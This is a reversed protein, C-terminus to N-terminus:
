ASRRRWGHGILGVGVLGTGLLFLTGPEPVQVETAINKFAGWAAGEQFGPNQDFVGQTVSIDSNSVPYFFQPTDLVGYQYVEDNGGFLVTSSAVLQYNHGAILAVSLGTFSLVQAAFAPYPTSFVNTSSTIDNLSLTGSLPNGFQNSLHNYDFGTLIANQLATFQIGWSTDNGGVVDFSTPGVIIGANVQNVGGLLLVLTALILTARKM